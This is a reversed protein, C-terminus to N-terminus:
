PPMRASAFTLSCALARCASGQRCRGNPSRSSRRASAPRLRDANGAKRRTGPALAMNSGLTRPDLGATRVAHAAGPAWAAWLTLFRARAAGRHSPHPHPPNGGVDRAHTWFGQLDLVQGHDISDRDERAPRAPRAIMQVVLIVLGAARRWSTSARDLTRHTCHVARRRAQRDPRAASMPSGAYAQGSANRVVSGGLSASISM